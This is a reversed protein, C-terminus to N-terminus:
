KEIPSLKSKELRKKKSGGTKVNMELTCLLIEHDSSGLRGEKNVEIVMNGASSLVLDLYNGSIHTECEVHQSLFKRQVVELFNSGNEEYM